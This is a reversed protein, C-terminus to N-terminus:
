AKIYSAMNGSDTYNHCYSLRKKIITIGIGPYITKTNFGVGTTNSRGSAVWENM